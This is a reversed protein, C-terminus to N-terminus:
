LAGVQRWVSNNHIIAIVLMAMSKSGFAEHSVISLSERGVRMDQPPIVAQEKNVLGYQKEHLTTAKQESLTYVQIILNMIWMVHAKALDRHDFDREYKYDHDKRM